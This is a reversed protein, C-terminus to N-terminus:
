RGGGSVWDILSGLSSKRWFANWIQDNWGRGVYVGPDLDGDDKMQVILYFVGLCNRNNRAIGLVNM